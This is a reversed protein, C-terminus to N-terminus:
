LAGRGLLGEWSRGKPRSNRGKPSM